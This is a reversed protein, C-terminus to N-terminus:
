SKQYSLLIQKSLVVVVNRQSDVGIKKLYAITTENMLEIEKLKTM